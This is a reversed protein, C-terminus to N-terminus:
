RMNAATNMETMEMRVSTREFLKWKVKEVMKAFESKKVRMTEIAEVYRNYKRIDKKNRSGHCM